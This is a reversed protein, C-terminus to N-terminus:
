YIAIPLASTIPLDRLDFGSLIYDGLMGGHGLSVFQARQAVAAGLSFRITFLHPKGMFHYALMLDFNHSEFHKQLEESTGHFQKRIDGKLESVADQALDAFKRYGTGFSEFCISSELIEIARSALEANGSQAVLAQFSDGGELVNIKVTDDRVSNGDE